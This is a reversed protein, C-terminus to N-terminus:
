GAIMLHDVANELPADLLTVRSGFDEPLEEVNPSSIGTRLGQLLRDLSQRLQVARVSRLRPFPTLLMKAVGQHPQLGVVDIGQRLQRAFNRGDATFVSGCCSM